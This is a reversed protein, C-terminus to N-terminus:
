PTDFLVQCLNLLEAHPRHRDADVCRFHRTFQALFCAVRVCEEGVRFRLDNAAIIQQMGAGSNVSLVYSSWRFEKQIRGAHDAPRVQRFIKAHPRPWLLDYFRHFPQMLLTHPM